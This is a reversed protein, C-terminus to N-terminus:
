AIPAASEPQRILLGVLLGTIGALVVAGAWMHTSWAVDDGLHLGAFYSATWVAPVVVSLARFRAGDWPRLREAVADIAVAGIGIPLVLWFDDGQTVALAAAATLMLTLAGRPLRDRSALLLVAGSLLVVQLLLGAAGLARGTESDIGAAFTWDPTPWLQVLPHAYQTMFALLVWLELTVLVVVVSGAWGSRRDRWGALFPGTAMLAGGMALVLHTPSLLADVGEEIGFVTHWLMDGVGGVAFLAVGAVTLAYTPAVADRWEMGTARRGLVRRLVVGAVLLYAAYFVAHWPTFFSDDVRDHNHAWGDLHLGAAFALGLVALRLAFRQDTDVARDERVGTM